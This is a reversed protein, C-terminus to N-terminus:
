EVGGIAEPLTGLLHGSGIDISRLTGGHEGGGSLQGQHLQFRVRALRVVIEHHAANCEEARFRASSQEHLFLVCLLSLCSVSHM